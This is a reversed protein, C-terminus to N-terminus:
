VGMIALNETLLAYDQRNYANFLKAGKSGGKFLGKLFNM